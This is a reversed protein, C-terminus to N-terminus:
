KGRLSAAKYTSNQMRSAIAWDNDDLVYENFEGQTLEVEEKIEWKFMESIKDYEERKDIPTILNIRINLDGKDLARKQEQLQRKAEIRYAAVAEEFDVIHKAKNEAIRILLDAKKITIIRSNGNM